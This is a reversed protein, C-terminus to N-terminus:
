SGSRIFGESTVMEFIRDLTPILQIKKELRSSINFVNQPTNIQVKREGGHNQAFKFQMIKRTKCTRCFFNNPNCTKNDWVLKWDLM